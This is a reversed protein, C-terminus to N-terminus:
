EVLLASEFIDGGYIDYAVFLPLDEIVIEDKENQLVTMVESLMKRSRDVVDEKTEDGRVIGDMYMELESTMDPSSIKEAHKKLMKVVAIAKESPQLPNGSVYGRLILNQIITHRTAKTGLGLEEMKEVLMGQTYRVPPKTKKDLLEKGTVTIIQGEKFQPIFVDRRKYYPYFKIWNQEIFNSGNAIFPEGNIDITAIVINSAPHIEIKNTNIDMGLVGICKNKYVLIDLVFYEPFFDIQKLGKSHSVLKKELEEGTADGGAHLI